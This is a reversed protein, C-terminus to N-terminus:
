CRDSSSLAVACSVRQDERGEAEVVKLVKVVADSRGNRVLELTMGALEWLRDEFAKLVRDLREFYEKVAALEEPKGKKAQHLTENRFAELQLLQFHCPLLNMQPHDYGDEIDQALMSEVLQVKSSIEQFSRVM